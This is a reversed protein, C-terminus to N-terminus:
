QALEAADIHMENTFRDLPALRADGDALADLAGQFDTSEDPQDFEV